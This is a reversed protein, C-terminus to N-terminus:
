RLHARLFASRDRADMGRMSRWNVAEPPAQSVTGTQEVHPPRAAPAAKPTTSVGTQQAYYATRTADYYKKLVEVDAELPRGAQFRDIAAKVKVAKGYPLETYYNGMMNDIAAFNPEEAVMKEYMPKFKEIVQAANAREALAERQYDEVRRVLQLANMQVAVKYAQVKKEDEPNDSYELEELKDKSAIGLDHLAKEEAAAQVKEYVVAPNEQPKPAANQPKESNQAQVQAQALREMQQREAQMAAIQQQQCIAIYQAKLNEPIRSTDVRGETMASLLEGETYAPPQVAAPAQQAEAQPEQTREPTVLIRRGTEPDETIAVDPQPSTQAAEAVEQPAAQQPAEQANAEGVQAGAPAATEQVVTAMENEAM